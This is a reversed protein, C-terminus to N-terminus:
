SCSRFPQAPLLRRMQKYILTAAWNPSLRSLRDMLKADPGVMVRKADREMGDVITKAAATPQTIRAAMKDAAAGGPAEVGSNKSINTAVAGPFVVTVRVCSDVLESQLGETL